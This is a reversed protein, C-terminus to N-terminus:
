FQWEWAIGFSPLLNFWYYPTQFLTCNTGDCEYWYDYARINRRNYLNITELFLSFTGFNSQISHSIRVDLRHYASYRSSYPEELNSYSTINGTSSTDAVVTFETYPTGSHFQWSASLRWTTGLKYGVDAYITHRQDYPGPVDKNLRVLRDNYTYQDIHDTIKAYAYSVWWSLRHSGVSKAYIEVGRATEKSILLRARDIQTELFDSLPISLNRYRPRLHGLRREYGEIRLHVRDGFEHELGIVRHEAIDAHYFTSDDDPVDLTYIEQSQVYRGWAIRLSTSEDLRLALSSRPSLYRDGTYSRSDYRMGLELTLYSAPSIRSSLYTGFQQGAENPSLSRRFSHYGGFYQYFRSHYDYDASVYKFDFGAQLLIQRSLDFEADEKVQQFNFHRYDQVDYRVAGSGTFYATGDRHHTLSGTRLITTAVLRRSFESRLKIWFNGNSYRTNATDQSEDSYRLRDDAYLFSASLLHRGSLHYRLSAYTDYYVPSVTTDQDMLKLALDVYGRRASVIWAGRGGAVPGEASVRADTFSVGAAVRHLTASPARPTISFVGGLRDGYLASFGGTGLKVGQILDIDIISLAGGDVDRLHFPEYLQLGDFLALVQSYESGRISFNASFDNSSIGPIRKVARYIDEGFHPITQIDERTLTQSSIPADGMIAFTGPSVTIDRVSVPHPKLTVVINTDTDATLQIPGVILSDFGVHSFKLYRRGPLINALEFTGASDSITGGAAGVVAVSTAPLAAGGDEDIVRGSISAGNVTANVIGPKLAFSAMLVVLLYVLRKRVKVAAM